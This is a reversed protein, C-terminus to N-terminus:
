TCMTQQGLGNLESTDQTYELAATIQARTPQSNDEEGLPFIDDKPVEFPIRSIALNPTYTVTGMTRIYVKALLVALRWFNMPFTIEEEREIHNLTIFSKGKMHPNPNPPKM